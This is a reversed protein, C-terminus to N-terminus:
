DGEKGNKKPKKDERIWKESLGFWPGHSDRFFFYRVINLVLNSLVAIIVLEFMMFVRM